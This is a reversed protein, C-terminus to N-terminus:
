KFTSKGLPYNRMANFATFDGAGVACTFWAQSWGTQFMPDHQYVGSGFNVGGEPQYAWANAFKTLGLGSRCGAYWGAKYEPPGDPAALDMTIPQYFGFSDPLKACSSCFVAVIIISIVSLKKM